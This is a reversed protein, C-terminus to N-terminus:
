QNPTKSCVRTWNIGYRSIVRNSGHSTARWYHKINVGKIATNNIACRAAENYRKYDSLWQTHIVGESLSKNDDKYVLLCRIAKAVDYNVISDNNFVRVPIIGEMRTVCVKFLIQSVLNVNFSIIKASNSRKLDAHKDFSQSRTLPSFYKFVASYYM